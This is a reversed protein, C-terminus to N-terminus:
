CAAGAGTEAPSSAQSWARKWCRRELLAVSHGKKALAYAAAAGIIGAGIVVVDAAEPLKADSEVPDLLRTM